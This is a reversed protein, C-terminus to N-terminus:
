IYLFYIICPHIQDRLAYWGNAIAFIKSGKKASKFLEKSEAFTYIPQENPIPIHNFFVQGEEFLGKFCKNFIQPTIFDLPSLRTAYAVWRRGADNDPLFNDNHIFDIVRLSRTKVNNNLGM